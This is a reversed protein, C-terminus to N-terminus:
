IALSEVKRFSSLLARGRRGVRRRERGIRYIKRFNKKEGIKWHKLNTCDIVVTSNVGLGLKRKREREEDKGESETGVGGGSAAASAGAEAPAGAGTCAGARCAGAEAPAPAGGGACAGGRCAGARGHRRAMLERWLDGSGVVRAWWGM